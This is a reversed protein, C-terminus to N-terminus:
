RLLSVLWYVSLSGAILALVQSITQKVIGTQKIVVIFLVSLVAMVIQAAEIGLNFLLLSALVGSQPLTQESLAAAFGMGHMLGFGFILYYRQQVQKSARFAEIALYLISSAICLEVLLSQLRVIGFFTMALTISHALTFVTLQWLSQKFSSAVLVILFIFLLHDYGKPLIHEFGLSFYHRMDQWSLASDPPNVQGDLAFVPSQQMTILWRTMQKNNDTITLAIPEEFRFDATFQASIEHLAMRAPLHAQAQIKTMPWMLQNLYTAKEEAVANFSLYQWDLAQVEGNIRVVLAQSLKHLIAKIQPAALPKALLSAEYYAERSEFAASLDIEYSLALTQTEEVQLMVTTMNLLHAQAMGISM